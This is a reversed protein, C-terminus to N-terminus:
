KKQWLEYKDLILDTKEYGVPTQAGKETLCFDHETRSDLGVNGLRAFYAISLWDSSLQAPVGLIAGTGVQTCIAKIDRIKQEDRHYKGWFSLSVVVSAVLVLWAAKEWFANNKTTTAENWAVSKSFIAAFGLAFFPMSPLLYHASQKPSVMLPLSGALSLVFFFLTPKSLTLGRFGRKALMLAVLIFPLAFQSFLDLLINLHNEVPKEQVGSLTPLLQKNLYLDFYQQMGPVFGIVLALMALTLLLMIVSRAIAGTLGMPRFALWAAVPVAVPFFGVPGKCLVAAATLFAAVLLLENRKEFVSKTAFYTAFLVFVSMTCELMNNQYAWFVLPTTVWLLVPLWSPSSFPSEKELLTVKLLLRWNMVVGAACVIATCFSYLREVWFHDGFIKFFQSQLWLALPPQGFFVPDLAPTYYPKSFGGLGNAMNKAISAHTVGDLFMGHQVLVPLLLAIFVAATLLWFTKHTM